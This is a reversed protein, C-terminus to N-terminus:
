FNQIKSVRDVYLDPYQRSIYVLGFKINNEINRNLYIRLNARYRSSQACGTIMWSLMRNQDSCVEEFELYNKISLYKNYMLSLGLPGITMPTAKAPNIYSQMLTAFSKSAELHNINFNLEDSNADNLIKIVQSIQRNIRSKLVNSTAKNNSMRKNLYSRIKGLSSEISTVTDEIKVLNTKSYEIDYRALEEKLDNRARDLEWNLVYSESLLDSLVLVEADILEQLKFKLDVLKKSTNSDVSVVISNAKVAIGKLTDAITHETPKIVGKFTKFINKFKAGLKKYREKYKAVVIKTHELEKNKLALEKKLSGERQGGKTEIDSGLTDHAEKMKSNLLDKCESLRNSLRKYCRIRENAKSMRCKEVLFEDCKEKTLENGMLLDFSGLYLM